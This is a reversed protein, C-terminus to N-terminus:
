SEDPELKQIEEQLFRTVRSKNVYLTSVDVGLEDAAALGTLGGFNTLEFAKWVSESVKMRVRLIAMELVEADYEQQLRKVLDERAEASYLHHEGKANGHRAERGTFDYWAHHTITKLWARFSKKPDYEFDRICRALKLLVDQAVDNADQKPLGYQACWKLILPEYRVLFRSWATEDNVGVRLSKLLTMSTSTDEASQTHRGM